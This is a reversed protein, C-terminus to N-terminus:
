NSIQTLKVMMPGIEFYNRLYGGMLQSRFQCLKEAQGSVNAKPDPKVLIQLTRGNESRLMKVDLDLMKMADYLSDSFRLIQYNGSQISDNIKVVEINELSEGRAFINAARSLQKVVAAEQGPNQSALEARVQPLIINDYIQFVNKIIEEKSLTPTFLGEYRNLDIGFGTNFFKQLADFTIGSYQGLTDSGSTKLSLLSVRANDISLILDAKTSKSESTGDSKVEITNTNPDRMVRVIAQDVSKSENVYLVVSSLLNELDRPLPGVGYDLLAQASKAPVVGIFTINDPNSKTSYQMQEQLDFQMSAGKFNEQDGGAQFLLSRVQNNNVPATQNKFKAYVALGMFLENLHGKNYPTKGELGTFTSGKFIAGWSGKIDSEVGTQPDKKVFFPAPPLPTQNTLNNQLATITQQALQVSDGYQSRKDPSVEVPGQTALKLLIEVYKGGHKSLQAPTLGAENLFERARM